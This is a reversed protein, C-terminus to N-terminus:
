TPKPLMVLSITIIMNDAEVVRPVFRVSVVEFVILEVTQADNNKASFLIVAVLNLFLLACEAVFIQSASACDSKVISVCESSVNQICLHV